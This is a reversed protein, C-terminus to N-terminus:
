FFDAFQEVGVPLAGGRRIHAWLKPVLWSRLEAADAPAEPGCFSSDNRSELEICKIEGHNWSIRLSRPEADASQHILRAGGHDATGWTFALSRPATREALLADIEGLVSRVLASGLPGEDSEAPTRRANAIGPGTGRM